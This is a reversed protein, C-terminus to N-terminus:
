IKPLSQYIMRIAEPILSLLDDASMSYPQGIQRFAIQAATAHVWVGLCSAEFPLSGQALFGGIL